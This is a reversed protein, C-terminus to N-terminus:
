ASGWFPVRIKPFGLDLGQVMFGIRAWCVGIYGRYLGQVPGRIKPFVLVTKAM